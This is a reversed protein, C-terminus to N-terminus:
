IPEGEQGTRSVKTRYSLNWIVLSAVGGVAYAAMNWPDATSHRYLYHFHVFVYQFYVSWLVVHSAVEFATPPLDHGRLRAKKQVLLVMPLFFPILLVDNLYDHFFGRHGFATKKIWFRNVLYLLVSVLFLWDAM